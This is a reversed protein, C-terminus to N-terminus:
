LGFMRQERRMLNPKVGYAVIHDGIPVEDICRTQQVNGDDFYVDISRLNPLRPRRLCFYM